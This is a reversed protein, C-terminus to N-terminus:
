DLGSVCILSVLTPDGDPIERQVFGAKAFVRLSRPNSRKVSAVVSQYGLRVAERCAREITETGLGHGRFEPRLALHIETRRPDRDDENLRVTGIRDPGAEVIYVHQRPDAAAKTYWDLHTEWAIPQSDLSMSRTEPDNRVSLLFEADAQFLRQTPDTEVPRLILPM